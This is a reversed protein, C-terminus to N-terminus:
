VISSVEVTRVGLLTTSKVTLKYPGIVISDSVNPHQGLERIILEELTLEGDEDLHTGYRDYFEKITMSGELTKEHMLSKHHAPLPEQKTQASSFARQIISLLTIFGVANGQKDLIFAIRQNNRRFQQIIDSMSTQLTIFWPAQAYDAIRHNESARVVERPHVIGVINTIRKHYIPIYNQQKKRLYNRLQTITADSPLMDNPELPQMLDKASLTHLNFLASVITNLDAADQSEQMAPEQGEVMKLLEEKGMFLDHSHAKTGILKDVINTLFEITWTIPFLLKASLYLLPAGLLAVHESFKRAAFMPALEGMVVVLIVQTLPALDPDLGLSSYFERACESGVFTAVNVGILTTTFLLSPDNLLKLLLQARWSGNIAYFQLRAKNVSVCAMEVMSYFGLAIITFLNFLLWGLASDM